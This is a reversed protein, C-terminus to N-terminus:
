QLVSSFVLFGGAVLTYFVVSFMGLMLINFVARGSGYAEEAKHRHRPRRERGAIIRIYFWRGPAPISYRVDLSHTSTWDDARADAAAQKIAARQAISLEDACGSPLIKLVREGFAQAAPEIVSM